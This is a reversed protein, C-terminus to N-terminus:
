RILMGREKRLLPVEGLDLIQLISTAMMEHSVNFGICDLDGLPTFTELTYLPLKNDRLVTEFDPAVAFVRECAMGEVSNARDYLIKLGNNSMAVEYLDPYSLAMRADATFKVETHLEGGIYRSPKQVKLLIKELKEPIM